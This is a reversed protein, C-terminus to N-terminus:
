LKGKTLIPWFRFIEIGWQISVIGSNRLLQAKTFSVDGFIHYREHNSTRKEGRGAVARSGGMYYGRRDMRM